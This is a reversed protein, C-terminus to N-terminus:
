AAESHPACRAGQVAGPTKMKTRALGSSDCSWVSNWVAEVTRAYHETAELVLDKRKDWDIIGRTQFEDAFRLLEDYQEVAAM